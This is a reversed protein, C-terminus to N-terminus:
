RHAHSRSREAPESAIRPRHNRRAGDIVVGALTLAMGVMVVLHATHESPSFGTTHHHGTAPLALHVLVDLALGAGILLLGLVSLVPPRTM